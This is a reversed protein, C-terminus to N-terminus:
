ERTDTDITQIIREFQEIERQMLAKEAQWQTASIEGQKKAVADETDACAQELAEIRVAAALRAQELQNDSVLELVTEITIDQWSM